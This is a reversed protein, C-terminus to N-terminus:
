DMYLAFGNDTHRSKSVHTPRFDSVGNSVPCPSLNTKFKCRRTRLQNILM